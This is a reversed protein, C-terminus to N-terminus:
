RLKLLNEKAHRGSESDPALSAAKEWYTRARDDQSLNGYIAGLNYLADVNAADVELVRETARIAGSIDGIEFLARGLELNAEVSKPNQTVAERLYRVSDNVKGSDRSVQSLRMLIPLHDPNKELEGKLAKIEHERESSPTHSLMLQPHGPSVSAAARDPAAKTLSQYLPISAGLLAPPILWLVLKRKM